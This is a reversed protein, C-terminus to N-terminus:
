GEFWFSCLRAQRLKFRLKVTRGRIDALGGSRWHMLLRPQDGSVPTSAALLNQEADLAEVTLSGDPADLNVWLETGPLAFPKTVLIGPEDEADLSVFGDRRLVALCIASHPDDLWDAREPPSLTSPDRPSGDTYRDHQAARRKWGTYYFWLEDGREVPHNTVGLQLRDYNGVLGKEDIRSPGIFAQRAGLRTWEKLDRTMALQILHFGDTNRRDPLIQGTPYYIMLWALYMGEYPFVGINYCKARWTPHHTLGPPPQWGIAPDPDVFLPKALGPDALRRRIVEPALEQDEDDTGFFPRPETWHVFDESTSINYARGHHGHTKLMGLFLRRQRDFCLTGADSSPLTPADLKCWHVCDPSAVPQRGSAGLFGKYRRQPDPDDPDHIVQWLRKQEPAAILNNQKSGDLEVVGLHPKEWHVGDESVALAWRKLGTGHRCEYVMKYVGEEAIWMPASVAGITDGDSPIDPKLIPGRKEPQHMTRRLGTSEAVCDDDLFLQRRGVQIEM